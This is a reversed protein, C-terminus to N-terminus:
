DTSDIDYEDSIKLYRGFLYIFQVLAAFEWLNRIEHLVGHDGNVDNSLKAGDTGGKTTRSTGSAATRSAPSSAPAPSATASASVTGDAADDLTQARTRKRPVM